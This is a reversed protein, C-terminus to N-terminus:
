VSELSLLPPVIACGHHSICTKTFGIFIDILRHKVCYEITENQGISEGYFRQCPLNARIWRSDAPFWRLLLVFMTGDASLRGVTGAREEFKGDLCLIRFHGSWSVCSRWIPPNRTRGTRTSRVRVCNVSGFTSRSSRMCQAPLWARFATSASFQRCITTPPRQIRKAWGIAVM